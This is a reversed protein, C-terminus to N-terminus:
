KIILGASTGGIAILLPKLWTWISKGTSEANKVVQDIQAQVKATNEDDHQEIDKVAKDIDAQTISDSKPKSDFHPDTPNRVLKKDITGAPNWTPTNAGGGDILVDYISGDPYAVIDTAFGQCNNGSPKALLGSDDTARWVALQVIKFAGCPGSLDVGAKQLDLKAKAIDPKSQASLSISFLLILLLIRKM